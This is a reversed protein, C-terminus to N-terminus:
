STFLETALSTVGATVLLAGTALTAVSGRLIARRRRLLADCDGCRGVLVDAHVIGLRGVLTSAVGLALLIAASAIM